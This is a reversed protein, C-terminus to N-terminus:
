LIGNSELLSPELHTSHRPPSIQSARGTSRSAHLTLFGDGCGPADPVSLVEPCDLVANVAIPEGANRTVMMYRRLNFKFAFNSILKDCKLKL